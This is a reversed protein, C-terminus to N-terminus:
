VLDKNLADLQAQMDAVFQDKQAYAYDKMAQADAKTEAKVNDLQQGTSSDDSRKCGVAFMSIACFTIALMKNKM